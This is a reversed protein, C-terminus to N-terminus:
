SAIQLRGAPSTSLREHGNDTVLIMDCHRTAGVGEVYTYPEVTIAMGQRLPAKNYSRLNSEEIRGEWESVVGRSLGSGVPSAGYGDRLFIAGAAAHPASCPAGPVVAKIAAEHAEVLTGYYADHAAPLDGVAITREVAALYHWASAEVVVQLLNGATLPEGSTGSHPEMTRAGQQSYCRLHTELETFGRGAFDAMALSARAALSSEAQGIRAQELIAGVGADSIAVAKHVYALEEESHILRLANLAATGDRLSAEPYHAHLAEVSAFTAMAGDFAVGAVGRAVLASALRAIATELSPGEGDNYDILKGVHSLAQARPRELASVIMFAPDSKPVVTMSPRGWHVIPAGSLYFSGTFSFAVFAEGDSLSARIGAQRREIEAASFPPSSMM